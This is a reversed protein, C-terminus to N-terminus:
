FYNAIYRMNLHVPPFQFFEYHGQEMGALETFLQKGAKSKAKASAALYFEKAIIESGVRTFSGEPIGFVRELADWRGPISGNFLEVEDTRITVQWRLRHLDIGAYLAKREEVGKKYRSM